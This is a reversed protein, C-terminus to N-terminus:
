RIKWHLNSCKSVSALEEHLDFIIEMILCAATTTKSFYPSTLFRVFRSSSSRDLKTELCSNVHKEQTHRTSSGDTQVM